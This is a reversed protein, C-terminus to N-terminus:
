IFRVGIYVLVPECLRPNSPDFTRPYSQRAGCVESPSCELVGTVFNCDKGALASAIGESWSSGMAGLCALIAGQEDAPINCSDMIDQITVAGGDPATSVSDKPPSRDPASAIDPSAPKSDPFQLYISSDAKTEPQAGIADRLDVTAADHTQSLGKLPERSCGITAAGGLFLLLGLAPASLTAALRRFSSAPTEATQRALAARIEDILTAYREGDLVENDVLAGPAAAKRAKLDRALTELLARLSSWFMDCGQRAVLTAHLAGLTEETGAWPKVKMGCMEVLFSRIRQISSPVILSEV